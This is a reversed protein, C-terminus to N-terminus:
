EMSRRARLEARYLWETVVLQMEDEFIDGEEELSPRLYPRAPIIAGKGTPGNSGEEHVLAYPSSRSGQPIGVEIMAGDTTLRLGGTIDDRMHEADDIGLLYEDFSGAREKYKRTSEALETWAPWTNERTRTGMWHHGIKEKAKEEVGQIHKDLRNIISRERQWNGLENLSQSLGTFGQIV